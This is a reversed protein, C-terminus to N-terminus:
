LRPCTLGLVSQSDAALCPAGLDMGVGSGTVPVRSGQFCCGYRSHVARLGAAAHPPPGSVSFISIKYERFSFPCGPPDPVAAVPAAHM